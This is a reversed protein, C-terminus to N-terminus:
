HQPGVVDQRRARRKRVRDVIFAGILGGVVFVLVGALVAIGTNSWRIGTSAADIMIVFFVLAGAAAGKSVDFYRQKM